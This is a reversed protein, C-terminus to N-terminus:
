NRERAMREMEKDFTEKFREYDYDIRLREDRSIGQNIANALEEGSLEIAVYYKFNGNETVRVVEECITRIGNLQQDVVERTLAEYREEIEERNNFERTLVYDDIVRKVTTNIASALDARANTYARRKATAQDMSEGLNNARFFKSDSFYDPGACYQTIRVEGTPAPGPQAAKKKKGCSTSGIALGLALLSMTFVRPNILAKM